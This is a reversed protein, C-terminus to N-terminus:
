RLSYQAPNDLIAIATQHAQEVTLKAELLVKTVDSLRRSAVTTDLADFLHFYALRENVTMARVDSDDNM